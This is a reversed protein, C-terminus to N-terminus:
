DVVLVGPRNGKEVKRILDDVDQSVHFGQMKNLPPGDSDVGTIFFAPIGFDKNFKFDLKYIKEVQLIIASKFGSTRAGNSLGLAIKENAAPVYHMIDADMFKYLDTVETFPIGTFFRYDLDECLYSWLKKTDIM